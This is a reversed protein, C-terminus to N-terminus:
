LDFALATDLQLPQPAQLRAAFLVLFTAVFQLRQVLHQEVEELHPALHASHVVDVGPQQPDLLDAFPALAPRIVQRFDSQYM